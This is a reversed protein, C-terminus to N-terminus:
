DNFFKQRLQAETRICYVKATFAPDSHGLWASVASIDYGEDLKRLAFAHRFAHFNAITNNPIEAAIRLRRLIAQLGDITLESGDQKVFLRNAAGDHPRIETWERISEAHENAAYIHRTRKGQNGGIGKEHVPAAFCLRGNNEWFEIDSYRISQLGGIRCGSAWLLDIIARDRTDAVERLQHYTEPAIAKPMRPREQAYPVHKAPNHAIIGKSLLRNLIINIARLYNNATTASARDLAAQHWDYILQATIEDVHIDNAFRILMSVAHNLWRRTSESITPIGGHNTACVEVADSLHLQSGLRRETDTFM